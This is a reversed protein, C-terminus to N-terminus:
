PTVGEQLGLQWAHPQGLPGDAFADAGFWTAACVLGLGFLVKPAVLVRTWSMIPNREEDDDRRADPLEGQRKACGGRPGRRLAPFWARKVMLWLGQRPSDLGTQAVIHRM